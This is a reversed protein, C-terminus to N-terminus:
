FLKKVRVTTYGAYANSIYSGIKVRIKTSQGAPKNTVESSGSKFCISASLSTGLGSNYLSRPDPNEQVYNIYTTVSSGNFGTGIIIKGYLVDRYGSSGGANPSGAAILEYVEGAGNSVYTDYISTSGSTGTQGFSKGLFADASISGSVQLKEAPNTTGIGVNGQVILGNTPAATSGYTSGISTNGFVSLKSGSATLSGVSTFTTNIYVNNDYLVRFRAVGSANKLDFYDGNSSNRIYAGTGDIGFSGSRSNTTNVISVIATGATGAVELKSRPSSTGIGVNGGSLIRMRETGTGITSTGTYFRIANQSAGSSDFDLYYNNTRIGTSYTPNTNDIFFYSRTGGDSDQLSIGGTTGPYISLKQNVTTTGIGVSGGSAIRLREIGATTFVIPYSQAVGFYASGTVAGYVNTAAANNFGIAGGVLARIDFSFKVDSGIANVTAISGGEVALKAAPSSTGIGINTQTLTLLATSSANYFYFSNDASTQALSAGIVWQATTASVQNSFFRLAGRRNTSANGSRFILEAAGGSGEQITVIATESTGAAKYVHLSGTPILTGIGVNGGNPNLLLDKYNYLTNTAQIFGKDASTNYGIILRRSGSTAGNLILQGIDNNYVSQDASVVLKAGPSTTGVGLNGAIYVGDSAIQMKLTQSALVGGVWFKHGLGSSLTGGVQHYNSQDIATGDRNGRLIISHNTDNGYIWGYGSNNLKLRGVVELKEAPNSTGIGVNGSPIIRMTESNGTAFAMYGAGVSGGSEIWNYYIGSADFALRRLNASGSSINITGAVDLKSGPSTTGIGVNGVPLITYGYIPNIQLYETLTSASPTAKLKISLTGVRHDAGNGISDFSVMERTGTWISTNESRLIFSAGIQGASGMYTTGGTAIAPTTGYSQISYVPSSTGVGVNGTSDIRVRESGGTKFAITDAAAWDMGTNTDQNFSYYPDHNGYIVAGTTDGAYVVGSSNVTFIANTSGARIRFPIYNNGVAAAYQYGVGIAAGGFSANTSRVFLFSGSTTNTGETQIQLGSTTTSTGIGVYGGSTIRMKEAGSFGFLINGTDNRFILDDTQSAQGLYNGGIGIVAKNTSGKKFNIKPGAIASNDASAAIDLLEAPSSTGVGICGSGSVFM